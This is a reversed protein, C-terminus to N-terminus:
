LTDDNEKEFWVPAGWQFVSPRVYDKEWLEHLQMVLELLDPTSVRYPTKSMPADGPMFEVQSILTRRQLFVLLNILFVNRFDRLM